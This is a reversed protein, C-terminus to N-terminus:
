IMNFIRYTLKKHVSFSLPKTFIDALQDKSCVWEIDARGRKECEIVFHYRIETLHRLGVAGQMTTSQIAAYNDCRLKMPYLNKYAFNGLSFGIAIIQKCAESM